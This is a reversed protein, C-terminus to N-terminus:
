VRESLRGFLGQPRLLVILLFALFVVMNQLQIPLFVPSVQQLLGITMGGWFAGTISGLGGLVVSAYMLILFDLGVYPQFPTSTAILAGAVATLMVGIAFAMRHVQLVNVGMYV